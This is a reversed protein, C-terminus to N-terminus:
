HIQSTGQIITSMGAYRLMGLLKVLIGKLVHAFLWIKCSQLLSEEKVIFFTKVKKILWKIQMDFNDDTFEDFREFFQKSSNKNKLCYPIEVLDIKKKVEFFWPLM